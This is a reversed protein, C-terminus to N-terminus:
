YLYFAFVIVWICVSFTKELTNYVMKWIAKTYHKINTYLGLEEKFNLSLVLFHYHFIMTM